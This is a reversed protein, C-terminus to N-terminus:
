PADSYREAAALAAIMGGRDLRRGYAPTDRQYRWGEALPGADVVDFGFTDILEAVSAKADADDGAVTLARRGPAGAPLADGVIDAAGLNNFAKVVVSGPLSAQLLESTTTSEDDLPPISGNWSPYYNGADIVVKGAFADAPLSAYRDIPIAAFVLDAERAATEVTAASAAPGLEAVLDTITEPGRSNALVVSYGAAVARRAFGTGVNGTGIIGITTM